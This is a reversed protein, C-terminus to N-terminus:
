ESRDKMKAAGETQWQMNEPSDAGRRKLPKVHDIVFGPCSGTSKGTSPCPHDRKFANRARPDRSIRGHADRPVGAAYNSGQHAGTGPAQGGAAKSKADALASCALALGVALLPLRRMGRM